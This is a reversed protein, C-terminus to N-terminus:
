RSIRSRLDNITTSLTKLQQSSKKLGPKPVSFDTETLNFNDIQPISFLYMGIDFQHILIPTYGKVPSWRTTIEQLHRALDASGLGARMWVSDKKGVYMVMKVTNDIMVPFYWMQSETIISHIPTNEKYNRISDASLNYLQFPTGLTAKSLNDTADFGLLIKVNDPVANKLYQSFGDTATHIVESPVTTTQAYLAGTSM